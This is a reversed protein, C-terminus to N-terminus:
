SKLFDHIAMFIQAVKNGFPMAHYTMMVHFVSANNISFSLMQITTNIIQFFRKEKLNSICGGLYIPANWSLEDFPHTSELNM